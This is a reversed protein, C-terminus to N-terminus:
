QAPYRSLRLLSIILGLTGLGTVILTTFPSIPLFFLGVPIALGSLIAQRRHVQRRWRIFGSDPGAGRALAHGCRPCFNAVETVPASCHPCCLAM